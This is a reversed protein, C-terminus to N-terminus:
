RTKGLRSARVGMEAPITVPRIGYWFLEREYYDHFKEYQAAGMHIRHMISLHYGKNSEDDRHQQRLLCHGLEHYMVEERDIKSAKNWWKKSVVVSPHSNFASNFTCAAFIVLGRDKPSQPAKPKGFKITLGQTNIKLDYAKGTEVFENVYSQFQPDILDTAFSTASFILIMSIFILLRM